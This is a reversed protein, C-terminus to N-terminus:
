AFPDYWARSAWASERIDHMGSFIEFLTTTALKVNRQPDRARSSVGPLGYDSNQGVAAIITLSAM